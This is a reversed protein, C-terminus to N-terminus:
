RWTSSYRSSSRASRHFCLRPLPHGIKGTKSMLASYVSVLFSGENQGFSVGYINDLGALDLDPATDYLIFTMDSWEGSRSKEVVTDTIYWGMAMVYDYHKTELADM